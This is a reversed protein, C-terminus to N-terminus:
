KGQIYDASFTAKWQDATAGDEVEITMAEKRKEDGVSLTVDYDYGRFRYAVMVTSSAMKKESNLQHKVTLFSDVFLQYHKVYHKEGM